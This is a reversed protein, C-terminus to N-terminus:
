NGCQFLYGRQNQEIKPESLTADVFYLPALTKEDPADLGNLRM